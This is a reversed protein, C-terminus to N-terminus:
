ERSIQLKTSLEKTKPILYAAVWPEMVATYNHEITISMIWTNNQQSVSSSFHSIGSNEIGHVLLVTYRSFDVKPFQSKDELIQFLEDESNVVVIEESPSLITCSSQVDLQKGVVENDSKECSSLSVIFLLSLVFYKM